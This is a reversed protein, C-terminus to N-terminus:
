RFKSIVYNQNNRFNKNEILKEIESKKQKEPLTKLKTKM